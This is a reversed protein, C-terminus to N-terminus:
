SSQDPGAPSPPTCDAVTVTVSRRTVGGPGTAEVTIEVPVDPAQTDIDSIPASWESAGVVMAASRSEGAQSWTIRASEAGEIDVELVASPDDCLMLNTPVVGDVKMRVNSVRPAEVVTTTTGPESTSTPQTSTPGTTSPTGDASGPSTATGSTSGHPSSTVSGGTTPSGEVDGSPISAGEPGAVESGAVGAEGDPGPTVSSGDDSTSGTTAADPGDPVMAILDVENGGGDGLGDVVAGVGLASAGVVSLVVLANVAGRVARIRNGRTAVRALM